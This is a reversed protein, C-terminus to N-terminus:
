KKQTGNENFFIIQESAGKEIEVKYSVKNQETVKEIEDIKYSPYNKQIASSVAKPLNRKAIKEELKIQTGKASYWAEFDRNTGQEFDVNYINNELKWEVDKAKPFDVNFQNVVVSPVQNQPIDQASLSGAAFILGLFQMKM